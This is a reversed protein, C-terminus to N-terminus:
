AIYLKAKEDTKIFVLDQLIPRPKQITRVVRMRVPHAPKLIVKPIMEIKPAIAIRYSIFPLRIDFFGMTLVVLGFAIPILILTIMTCPM